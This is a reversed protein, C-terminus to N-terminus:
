PFVRPNGRYGNGPLPETCCQRFLRDRRYNIINKRYIGWGKIKGLKETNIATVGKAKIQKMVNQIFSQRFNDPNSKMTLQFLGVTM